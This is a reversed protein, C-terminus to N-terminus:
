HNVICFESNHCDGIINLLSKYRFNVIYDNNDIGIENVRLQCLYTEETRKLNRPLYFHKTRVFGEENSPLMELTTPNVYLPDKFVFTYSGNMLVMDLNFRAATGSTFRYFINNVNSISFTASECILESPFNTENKIKFNTLDIKHYYDPIYKEEFNYFTLKQKSTRTGNLASYATINSVSTVKYESSNLNIIEGNSIGPNVTATHSTKDTKLKWEIRLKNSTRTYQNNYTFSETGKKKISATYILKGSTYLDNEIYVAVTLPNSLSATASIEMQTLMGANNLPGSKFSTLSNTATTAGVSTSVLATSSLLLLIRNKMITM